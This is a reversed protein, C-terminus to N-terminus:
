PAPELLVLTHTARGEYVTAGFLLIEDDRTYRTSDLGRRGNNELAATWGAAEVAARWAGVDLDAGAVILSDTRSSLVDAGALPLEMERWPATLDVTAVPVADVPVPPNCAVLLGPLFWM